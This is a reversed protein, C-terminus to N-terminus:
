VMHGGLMRGVQTRRIAKPSGHNTSGSDSAPLTQETALHIDKAFEEGWIEFSAVNLSLRWEVGAHRKKIARRVTWTVGSKETRIRLSVFCCIQHASIELRADWIATQDQL